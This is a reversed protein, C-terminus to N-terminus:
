PQKTITRFPTNAKSGYKVHLAELRVGNAPAADWGLAQASAYLSALAAVERAAAHRLGASAPAAFAPEDSALGVFAPGAFALGAFALGAFALGVFALGVFALGVFALGAFALGAFALGVFALGAAAERGAVRSQFSACLSWTALDERALAVWGLWWACRCAGLARQAEAGGHWVRRGRLAPCRLLCGRCAVQKVAFLGPFAGNVSHM